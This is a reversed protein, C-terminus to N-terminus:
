LVLLWVLVVFGILLGPAVTNELLLRLKSPEPDTQLLRGGDRNHLHWRVPGSSILM